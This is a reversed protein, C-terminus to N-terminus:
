LEILEPSSRTLVRGGGAEVAVVQEIRIGGQGPLYVGPEVTVVNGSELAASEERHLRPAEHVQLGLGHGTSHGFREALGQEELSDRAAADVVSAPTGAAIAEIARECADLVARHVTRQWRSARGLVFVRSMDSCYGDIRAGFDLLLL